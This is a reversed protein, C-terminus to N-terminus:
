KFNSLKIFRTGEYEGEEPVNLQTAVVLYSHVL